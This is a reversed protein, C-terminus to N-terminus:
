QMRGARDFHDLRREDPGDAPHTPANAQASRRSLLRPQDAPAACVAGAQGCLIQFLSTM